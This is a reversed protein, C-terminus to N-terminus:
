HIAGDARHPRLRIPMSKTSDLWKGIDSYQAATATYFEAYKSGASRDTSFTVRFDYTDTAWDHQMRRMHSFAWASLDMVLLRDHLDHM